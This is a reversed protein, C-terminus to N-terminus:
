YFLQWSENHLRNFNLIWRLSKPKFREASFFAVINLDWFNYEFLTGLYKNLFSEEAAFHTMVEFTYFSHFFINLVYTSRDRRFIQALNRSFTVLFLWTRPFLFCRDLFLSENSEKEFEQWNYKFNRLVKEKITCIILSFVFLSLM